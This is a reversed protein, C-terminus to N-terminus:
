NKFTNKFYHINNRFFTVNESNKNEMTLEFLKHWNKPVLGKRIREKAKRLLLEVDCDKVSVKEEKFSLDESLLFLSGGSIYRLWLIYEYKVFKKGPKKRCDDLYEILKKANKLKM